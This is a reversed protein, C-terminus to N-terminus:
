FDAPDLGASRFAAAHKDALQSLTLEDGTRNVFKDLKLGGKRFLRGKTVGLVDDQFDTSQTTLWNQYTTKAPVTGTLERVRQAKFSDYTGKHGFPLANRNRVKDWGNKKSYERLLQQETVPKAPRRGIVEGNIVAVRLSRCAWHLPPLPGEGVPFRKGDHARCVPTTRSDLTAVYQEEKFYEKNDKYFERRAANAIHNVATRTIADAGRRTLATVGNRGKLNKTGVVRRAIVASTEGQVMGIKIQDLIRNIDKKRLSTAWQKLTRGEFPRSTAIARLLAPPPAKLDLLVPVTTSVTVASIKAEETALDIMESLWLEDIEDWAKTRVSTIYKQLSELKTTNFGKNNHLKYLIKAAIDEETANLLKRIKKRIDQAYRM